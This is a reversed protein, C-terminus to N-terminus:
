NKMGLWYGLRLIGEKDVSAKKLLGFYREKDGRSIAHHNVLVEGKYPFFRAFYTFLFNPPSTLLKFNKKSPYFPGKPSNSELTYMGVNGKYRGLSGAMMYYKGNIKEIAGAEIVPLKARSGWEIVPPALAKWHIGDTTEGFGFGPDFAKPNGTWYGYRGGKLKPISYICDWRSDLNKNIKYLSSDPIFKEDLRTWNILNDSSAFFIYQQGKLLESGYWESFNLIYKGKVKKSESKWISGTGIWKASDAKSFILGKEEWNIGDKSTALGIGEGPTNKTILYYLYFTENDYYM